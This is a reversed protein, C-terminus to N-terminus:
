IAGLPGYTKGQFTHPFHSTNSSVFQVVTQGVPGGVVGFNYISFPQHTMFTGPTRCYLSTCSTLVMCGVLILKQIRRYPTLASAGCPRARAPFEDWGRALGYVNVYIEPLQPAEYRDYKRM